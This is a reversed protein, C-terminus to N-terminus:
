VALIEVPLIGLAIDGLVGEDTELAGSIYCHEVMGALGLQQKGTAQSPALALEISDLLPNLLEATSRSYDSNAVYIYFDVKLTWVTPTFHGKIQATGGKETMFLAPMEAANVQAWHRLRRSKTAFLAANSALIWLASYIEERIIM